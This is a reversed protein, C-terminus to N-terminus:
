TGAAAPLRSDPACYQAGSERKGAAAPVHIM